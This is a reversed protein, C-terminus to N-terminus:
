LNIIRTEFRCTEYQWGNYTIFCFNSNMVQKL